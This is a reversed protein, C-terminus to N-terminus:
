KNLKKEFKYIFYANFCLLMLGLVLQTWNGDRAFRAQGVYFGGIAPIITLAIINYILESKKVDYGELVYWWCLCIIYEYVFGLLM